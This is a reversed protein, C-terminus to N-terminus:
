TRQSNFSYICIHLTSSLHLSDSNDPEDSFTQMYPVPSNDLPWIERCVCLVDDTETKSFELTNM